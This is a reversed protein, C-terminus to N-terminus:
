HRSLGGKHYAERWEEELWRKQNKRVKELDRKKKKTQGPRDVVADWYGEENSFDIRMQSDGYTRPVRRFDYDFKLDYVPAGSLDSRRALYNPLDQIPSLDMAKAVAYKGPGCGAPM